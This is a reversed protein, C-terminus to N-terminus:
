NVSRSVEYWSTGDYVLKLVDNATASFDVGGALLMVATGASGSTNNKVTPNSDFILTIESGAQWNAVVIANITTNSTIHFVNGDAGLTLDNASGVDAGKATSFRIASAQIMSSDVIFKNVSTGRNTGTIIFQSTRTSFAAATWKSILQTSTLTVGAVTKNLFDLSGGIGNAATGSTLREITGVTVVTNTSSPNSVLRAATGSVSAAYVGTGSSTAQGLVGIGGAGDTSSFVGYTSGEAYLGTNNTTGNVASFYGAYNTSSTGSHANSVYFGYTTQAGTGNAGSLSINIGKQNTLAATGTIALDVLSGSTLTSSAAYFGTGALLSNANLVLSASTTTGTTNASTITQHGLITLRASNFILSDSAPTAFAGNRNLQVDGYNGAPTATTGGSPWHDLRGVNGNADLTAPKNATTDGSEFSSSPIYFPYQIKGTTYINLGIASSMNTTTTNGTFPAPTGGLSLAIDNATDKGHFFVFATKWTNSDVLLRGQQQNIYGIGNSSLFYGKYPTAYGPIYTPTTRIPDGTYNFGIRVNENDLKMGLIATNNTWSQYERIVLGYDQIVRNLIDFKNYNGDIYTYHLLPKAGLQFHGPEIQDVGNDAMFLSACTVDITDCTPTINVTDPCSCAWLKCGNATSGFSCIKFGFCTTDLNIGTGLQRVICSDGNILFINTISNNYINNINNNVTNSFSLTDCVGNSYCVIITSDTLTNISTINGGSGKLWKTATLDRIWLVNTFVDVPLGVGTTFIMAGAYYKINTLNAAITDVFSRNILSAKMAGNPPVQVLTSGSGINQQIPYQCIGRLSFILITILLFIKKM